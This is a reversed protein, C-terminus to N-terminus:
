GCSASAPTRCPRAPTRGTPRPRAPGAKASALPDKLVETLDHRMLLLTTSTSPSDADREAAWPSTWGAKEIGTSALLDNLCGGFRPAPQGPQDCRDPAELPFSALRTPGGRGEEDYWSAPPGSGAARAGRRSSSSRPRPGNAYTVCSSAGRRHHTPIATGPSWEARPVSLEQRLDMQDHQYPTSRSADRFANIFVRASAPHALRAALARDLYGATTHFSTYLSKKRGALTSAADAALCSRVDITDFRGRPAINLRIEAPSSSM